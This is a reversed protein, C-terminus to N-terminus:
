STLDFHSILFNINMIYRKCYHKGINEVYVGLPGHSSELPERLCFFLAVNVFYINPRRYIVM